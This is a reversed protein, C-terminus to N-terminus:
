CKVKFAKDLVLKFEAGGAATTCRSYCFNGYIELLLPFTASIFLAAPPLAGSFLTFVFKKPFLFLRSFLPLWTKLPPAIFRASVLPQPVGLTVSTVMSKSYFIIIPSCFHEGNKLNCESSMM